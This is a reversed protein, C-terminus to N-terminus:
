DRDLGSGIGGISRDLGALAAIWDRKWHQSEVYDPVWQQDMQAATAVSEPAISVVPVNDGSVM